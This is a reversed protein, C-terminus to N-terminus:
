VLGIIGSGPREVERSARKWLFRSVAPREEPIAEIRIRVRRAALGFFSHFGRETAEANRAFAMPCLKVTLLGKAITEGRTVDRLQNAARAVTTGASGPRALRFTRDVAPRAFPLAM